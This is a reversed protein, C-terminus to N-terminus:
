EELWHRDIVSNEYQDAPQFQPFSLPHYAPRLSLDNREPAPHSEGVIYGTMAIIMAAAILGRELVTM